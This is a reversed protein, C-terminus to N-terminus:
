GLRDRFISCSRRRRLFGRGSGKVLVEMTRMRGAGEDEVVVGFREGATGVRWLLKFVSVSRM